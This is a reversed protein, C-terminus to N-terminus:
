YIQALKVIEYVVNKINMNEFYVNGLQYNDIFTKFARSTKLSHILMTNPTHDSKTLAYTRSYNEDIDNSVYIKGEQLNTWVGYNNEKYIFKFFFQCNGKKKEIFTKNDRLFQNEIAYDGYQTGNILKGFRTKKKHEIFDKNQVLEVLIDNKCSITKGYPLKINFYLFYPNTITIANSLFYAKCNDRTRAITEYCELFNIVEDSLYHHTGKDLIFEDFIITTVKPFATSKEIKATSLPISIGCEKDNIYFFRGNVKFNVDPFEEKIDDFFKKIKKLEDKFRRIYVFQEGHKLFRNIAYKKCGYTKGTGRNGVIFNFLANYSLSKNIDWYM